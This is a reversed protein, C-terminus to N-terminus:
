IVSFRKSCGISSQESCSYSVIISNLKTRKDSPGITVPKSCGVSVRKARGFSVL